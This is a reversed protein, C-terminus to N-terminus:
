AGLRLTGARRCIARSVRPASASGGAARPRRDAQPERVDVSRPGHCGGAATVAGPGTRCARPPPVRCGGTQAGGSGSGERDKGKGCRHGCRLVWSSVGAVARVRAGPGGAAVALGGRSRGAGERRLAKQPRCNLCVASPPARTTPPCAALCPAQGQTTLRWYKVKWSLRRYWAQPPM